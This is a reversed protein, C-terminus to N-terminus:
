RSKAATFLDPSANACHAREAPIQRQARTLSTRRTTRHLALRQGARKAHKNVVPRCTSETIGSGIPLGTARMMQYLMRDQNNEIYTIYGGLKKLKEANKSTTEIFACFAPSRILPETM